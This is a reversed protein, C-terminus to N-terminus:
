GAPPPPGTDGAAQRQKWEALSMSPGDEGWPWVTIAEDRWQRNNIAEREAMSLIRRETGQGDRGARSKGEAM